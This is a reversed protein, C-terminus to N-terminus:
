KGKTESTLCFHKLTRLADVYGQRAAWTIMEANDGEMPYPPVNELMREIEYFVEINKDIWSKKQVGAVHEGEFEIDDVLRAILRGKENRIIGNQQVEVNNLTYTKISANM